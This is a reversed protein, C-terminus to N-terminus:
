DEGKFLKSARRAYHQGIANFGAKAVSSGTGYGGLHGLNAISGIKSGISSGSKLNAVSSSMSKAMAPIAGMGASGLAMGATKLMGLAGGMGVGQNSVGLLESIWTPMKQLLLIGIICSVIGCLTYFPINTVLISDDQAIILDTASSVISVPIMSLPFYMSIGIYSKVCAFFIGKTQPILLLPITIPLFALYIGSLFTAYMQIIIIAIVLIVACIIFLLYLIMLTGGTFIGLLLAGVTEWISAKDMYYEITKPAIKYVLSFPKQFTNNLRTGIDGGETNLASRLSTDM